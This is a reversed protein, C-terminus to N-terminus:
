GQKRSVFKSDKIYFRMPKKLDERVGVRFSEVIELSKKRVVVRLDDGVRKKHLKKDIGLAKTLKGPGSCDVDFNLPEIARILVASAVGEKDTVFNVLWNNHVGYVLINGADMLMTERLDGNQCARSAPDESGFYAETEVIRARKEKGDVIRVIECGLLDRAVVKANRNFFENDM